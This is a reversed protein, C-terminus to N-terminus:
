DDFRVKGIPIVEFSKVKVDLHPIIIGWWVLKCNGHNYGSTGLEQPKFLPFVNM